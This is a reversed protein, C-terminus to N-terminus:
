ESDYKLLFEPNIAKWSARGYLDPDYENPTVRFVLGERLVKSNLQSYGKSMEVLQEVTHNLKFRDIFPVLDLQLQNALTVMDDYELYWGKDIDFINFIKLQVNALTYKNKQIGPGLAEGQIGLNRGLKKLKEELQLERAIKWYTNTEDEKLELNRSCVGFIGNSFYYSASTGDCKECAVVMKGEHRKLVDLYTNIRQEDTKHLFEPFNGKIQGQLQAPIQIEYHSIKLLETLDTGEELVILKLFSM